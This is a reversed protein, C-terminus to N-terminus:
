RGGFLLEKWSKGLRHGLQMLLMFCEAYKAWLVHLIHPDMKKQIETNGYMVIEYRASSNPGIDSPGLKYKMTWPLAVGLAFVLMMSMTCTSILLKQQRSYVRDISSLLTNIDLENEGLSKESENAQIAIDSAASLSGSPVKLLQVESDDRYFLQYEPLDQIPLTNRESETVFDNDQVFTEFVPEVVVGIDSGDEEVRMWDSESSM